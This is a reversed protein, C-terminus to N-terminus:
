ELLVIVKCFMEISCDTVHISLIAYLYKKLVEESQSNGM